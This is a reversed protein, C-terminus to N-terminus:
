EMLYKLENIPRVRLKQNFILEFNQTKYEFLYPLNHRMHAVEIKIISDESKVTTISDLSKETQNGKKADYCKM